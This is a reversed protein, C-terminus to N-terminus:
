ILDDVSAAVPPEYQARFLKPANLGRKTPEGEGTFQVALTGGVELGNRGKAAIAEKVAKLMQGKIYLRRQGDDQADRREDLQLTVVVQMMPDGNDWTKPAGSDLDIQQSVDAGLITGKVTTGVPADKWSVSPSSGMLLKNAKEDIM